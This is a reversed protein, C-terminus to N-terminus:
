QSPSRMLPSPLALATPVKTSRVLRSSIRTLSGWGLGALAALTSCAKESLSLAMAWGIHGQRSKVYLLFNIVESTRLISIFSPLSGLLCYVCSNLPSATLSAADTPLCSAARRRPTGTAVNPLQDLFPM